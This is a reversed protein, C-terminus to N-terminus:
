KVDFHKFFMGRIVNYPKNTKKSLAEFVKDLKDLPINSLEIAGPDENCYPYTKCKEKIHVFKGGKWTKIKGRWNNRDKAWIAPGVYAGSSASTTSEDANLSENVKKILESKKITVNSKFKPSGGFLPGEFSGSSSASTTEDKSNSMNGSYKEYASDMIKKMTEKNNFASKIRHSVCKYNNCDGIHTILEDKFIQKDKNEGPIGLDYDNDLFTLADVISKKWSGFQIKDKKELIPTTLANKVEPTNSLAIQWDRTNQTSIPKDEM